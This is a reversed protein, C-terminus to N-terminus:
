AGGAAARRRLQSGAQEPRVFKMSSGYSVQVVGAPVQYGSAMSAEEFVRDVIADVWGAKGKSWVQVKDGACFGTLTRLDANSATHVDATDDQMPQERQVTESSSVSPAVKTGASPSAPAPALAMEEISESGPGVSSQALQVPPAALSEMRNAVVGFVAELVGAFSCASVIRDPASVGVHGQREESPGINLEVDPTQGPALEAASSDCYQITPVSEASRQPSL